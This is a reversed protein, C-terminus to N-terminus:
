TTTHPPHVDSLALDGQPSMAEDQPHGSTSVFHVVLRHSPPVDRTRM